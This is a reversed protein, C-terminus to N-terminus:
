KIIFLFKIYVEHCPDSKRDPLQPCFESALLRECLAFIGCSTKFDLIDDDNWGILNKIYVYQKESLPKGMILDLCPSLNQLLYTIFIYYFILM